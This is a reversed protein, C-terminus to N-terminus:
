RDGGELIDKVDQFIELLFNINELLFEKDGEQIAFIMPLNDTNKFYSVMIKKVLSLKQDNTM